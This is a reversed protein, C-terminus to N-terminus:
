DNSDGFIDAPLGFWNPRLFPLALGCIIILIAGDDTSALALLDTIIAM